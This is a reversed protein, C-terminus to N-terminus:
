NVSISKINVRKTTNGGTKNPIICKSIITKKYEENISEYKDIDKLFLTQNLTELIRNGNWFVKDYIYLGQFEDKYQPQPPTLTDLKVDGILIVDGNLTYEIGLSYKEEKGGATCLTNWANSGNRFKNCRVYIATRKNEDSKLCEDVAKKNYHITGGNVTITTQKEM